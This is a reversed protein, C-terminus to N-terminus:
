FLTPNTPELHHQTSPPSRTHLTSPPSIHLSFERGGGGGAAPLPDPKASQSFSAHIRVPWDAGLPARRPLPRRSLGQPGQSNTGQKRPRDQGSLAQLAHQLSCSGSVAAALEEAKGRRAQCRAQVKCRACVCVRCWKALTPQWDRIIVRGLWPAM